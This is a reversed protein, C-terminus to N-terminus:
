ASVFTMVFIAWIKRNILLLLSSQQHPLALRLHLLHEGESSNFEYRSLSLSFILSATPWLLERVWSRCLAIRYTSPRRLQHFRWASLVLPIFKAILRSFFPFVDVRIGCAVCTLASQPTKIIIIIKNNKKFKKKLAWFGNATRALAIKINKLFWERAFLNGSNLEFYNFRKTCVKGKGSELWLSPPSKSYVVVM